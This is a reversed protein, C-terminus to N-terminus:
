GEGALLSYVVLDQREGRVVFASRAVGERVFGLREALRISATNTTAARLEIRELNLGDFAHQLLLGVAETALGKGTADEALWYSIEATKLIRSDIGTLACEGIIRANSTILRYAAREAQMEEVQRAMRDQAAQEDFGSWVWGLWPGLFAVNRHVLAAYASADDSVPPRLAVSM